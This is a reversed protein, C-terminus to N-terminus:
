RGMSLGFSPRRPWFVGIEVRGVVRERPLLPVGGPAASEWSPCDVDARRPVKALVDKATPPVVCAATRATEPIELALTRVTATSGVYEDDGAAGCGARLAWGSDCPQEKARPTAGGGPTRLVVSHPM